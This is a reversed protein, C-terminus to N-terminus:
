YDDYGIGGDNGRAIEVDVGCLSLLTEVAMDDLCSGCYKLGGIEAYREGEYIGDGCETCRYVPEPEPANPCQPHCPNQRCVECM